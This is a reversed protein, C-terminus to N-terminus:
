TRVPNGFGSAAVQVSFSGGPQYIVVHCVGDTCSIKNGECSTLNVHPLAENACQVSILFITWARM